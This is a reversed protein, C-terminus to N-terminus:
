GGCIGCGSGKADSTYYGSKTNGYWRCGRNHRKSSSSNMWYRKADVESKKKSSESAEQKKLFALQKQKSRFDAPSIPAIELGWLGKKFKKAEIQADALEDDSNYKSYHWAGGRHILELNIYDGKITYIKALTRGYQDEGTKEYYIGGESDRTLQQLLQKSKEAYEQGKEPADIGVVRIKIQKKNDILLTLSDGDSVSIVKTLPSLKESYANVKEIYKKNDPDLESLERYRKLNEFTLRSPIIKLEEILLQQRKELDDQVAKAESSPSEDQLTQYKEGVIGDNNTINGGTQSSPTDVANSILNTNESTADTLLSGIASLFILGAFGIVCLLM